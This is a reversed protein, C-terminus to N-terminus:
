ISLRISLLKLGQNAPLKSEFLKISERESIQIMPKLGQNAPLKSEFQYLPFSIVIRLILKLGQNAPLKSEFLQSLENM